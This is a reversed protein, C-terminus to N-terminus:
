QAPLGRASFEIRGSPMAHLAGMLARVPEADMLANLGQLAKLSASSTELLRSVTGFLGESAPYTKFRERTDADIGALMKVDDVAAWFGGLEDVLGRELADAGTWVRGRAVEEVRAIPMKRGEAVKSTFDAYVIDAQENVKAMQAETWPTVGSLFLANQGVGLERATVGVLGMTRGVAVKGWLVGISGTLTGPLAIIRDAALSIYYGGSAAVSGMSVVVPKGAAKAKKVAQLIQDSAIASGGPSDVRLLIARVTDDDAADRIAKAYVDGYISDVNDSLPSDNDGELIEGAAHVLAITPAGSGAGVGSTAQAYRDFDTVTPDGGAKNEAAERAEDDYGIHTILGKQQVEEVTVPASDLVSVLADRTLSRDMAAEDVSSDYWSQLIRLTAERHAPTFDTETFMNVANKYERRQVFQPTAEVKDFLGKLFLTSSSSGASFFTSVPQMWIEDSAAAVVYDGLGGSYFSQSHAIVFKGAARFRKLADRLEEARPVSLDGSGVRMFVGKVRADREARDLTMVIDMVSLSRDGLDLLGNASKDGISKRADLELVMNSPLGDGSVLGIGALIIVLIVVFAVARAITNLVSKVIGWLWSLVIM